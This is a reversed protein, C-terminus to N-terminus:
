FKQLKVDPPVQLRDQPVAVDVDLEVAELTTVANGVRTQTLLPIGKWAWGRVPMGKMPEMSVGKCKRGLVVRDPLEQYHYQARLKADAFAAADQRPPVAGATVTGTRNAPDYHVTREPTRIDVAGADITKGLAQIHSTQYRAERAGWDDFWVVVKTEGMLDAKYVIKGSKVDYPGKPAAAGAAAVLPAALLVTALIRRVTTM